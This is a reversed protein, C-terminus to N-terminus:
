KAPFYKRLCYLYTIAKGEEDKLYSRGNDAFVGSNIGNIQLTRPAYGPKITFWCLLEDTEINRVSIRYNIYYITGQYGAFTGGMKEIIFYVQPADNKPSYYVEPLYETVERPEVYRPECEALLASRDTTFYDKAYIKPCKEMTVVPGDLLSAYAGAAEPSVEKGADLKEQFHSVGREFIEASNLGATYDFYEQTGLDVDDRSLKDEFHYLSNEKLQSLMKEDKVVLKISKSYAFAFSIAPYGQLTITADQLYYFSGYIYTVNEPIVIDKLTSDVGNLFSWICKVNKGISLSELRLKLNSNATLGVVPQGEYEDPIVLDEPAYAKVICIYGEENGLWQKIGTNSVTADNKEDNMYEKVSVFSLGNDEEPEETPQVTVTFTPTATITVTQSAPNKTNRNGCGNAFFTCIVVVALIIIIQLRKKM